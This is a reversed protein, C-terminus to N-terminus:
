SYVTNSWHVIVCSLLLARTSSSLMASRRDRVKGSPLKLSISLFCKSRRRCYWFSCQFFRHVMQHIWNPSSFELNKWATAVSLYLFFKIFVKCSWLPTSTSSWMAFSAIRNSVYLSLSPDYLGCGIFNLRKCISRRSTSKWLRIVGNVCASISAITLSIGGSLAGPGSPNLPANM